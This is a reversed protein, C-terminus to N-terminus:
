HMKNIITEVDGIGQCTEEQVPILERNPPM